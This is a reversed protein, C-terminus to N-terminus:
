KKNARPIANLKSKSQYPQIINPTLKIKNTINFERFCIICKMLREFGNSLLYFALHNIDPFGTLNQIEKLGYEIYKASIIMESDIYLYDKPNM